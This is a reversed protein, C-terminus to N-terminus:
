NIRQLEFVFGGNTLTIHDADKVTVDFELIGGMLGEVTLLYKDGNKTFAYTDMPSYIACNSGDFVIISGPDVQWGSQSSINQWKGEISFSQPFIEEISPFAANGWDQNKVTFSTDALAGRGLSYKETLVNKNALLFVMALAFALLATLIILWTISSKEQNGM